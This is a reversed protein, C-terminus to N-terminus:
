PLHATRAVRNVAVGPIALKPRPTSFKPSFFHGGFADRIGKHCQGNGERRDCCACCFCFKEAALVLAMRPVRRVRARRRVPGPRGIGMLKGSLGPWANDNAGAMAGFPM